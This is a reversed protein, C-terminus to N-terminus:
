TVPSRPVKEPRLIVSARQPCRRGVRNGDPQRSATGLRPVRRFRIPRYPLLKGLLERSKEALIAHTSPKNPDSNGYEVGAPSAWQRHLWLSRSWRWRDDRM